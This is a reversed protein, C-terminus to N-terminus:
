GICFAVGNRCVFHLSSNPAAGIRETVDVAALTAQTAIDTQNLTRNLLVVAWASLATAVAGFIAMSWQALTDETDSIVDEFGWWFFLCFTLTVCIGAALGLGFGNRGSGGFM